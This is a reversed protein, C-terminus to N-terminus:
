LGFKVIGGGYVAGRGKLFVMVIIFLILFGYVESWFVRLVYYFLLERLGM